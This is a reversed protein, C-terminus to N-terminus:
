NILDSISAFRFPSTIDSRYKNVASLIKYELSAKAQQEDKAKEKLSEYTRSITISRLVPEINSGKEELTKKIDYFQALLEKAVDRDFVVTDDQLTEIATTFNPAMSVESKVIGAQLRAKENYGEKLKIDSLKQKEAALMRELEKIYGAQALDVKQKYEELLEKIDDKKAEDTLRKDNLIETRKKKYEEALKEVEDAYKNLPKYDVIKANGNKELDKAYHEEVTYILGMDKRGRGDSVSNIMYVDVYKM